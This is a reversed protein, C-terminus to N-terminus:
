KTKCLKHFKEKYDEINKKSEEMGKKNMEIDKKIRMIKEEMRKIEEESNKLFLEEKRISEKINIAKHLKNEKSRIKFLVERKEKRERSKELLDVFNIKQINNRGYNANIASYNIYLRTKDNYDISILLIDENVGINIGWYNYCSMGHNKNLTYGLEEIEKRYKPEKSIKTTLTAYIKENLTLKKM